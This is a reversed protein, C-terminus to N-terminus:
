RIIPSGTPWQSCTPSVACCHKTAGSVVPPLTSDVSPVTSEEMSSVVAVDTSKSSSLREEVALRHMENLLLIQRLKADLVAQKEADENHLLPPPSPTLAAASSSKRKRSREDKSRASRASAKAASALKADGDAAGNYAASDITMTSQTARLKPRSPSTTPTPQDAVDTPTSTSTAELSAVSGAATTRVDDCQISHETCRTLLAALLRDTDILKLELTRVTQDLRKVRQAPSENDSNPSSKPVAAM